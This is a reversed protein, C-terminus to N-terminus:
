FMELEQVIRRKDTGPASLGCRVAPYVLISSVLFAFGEQLGSNMSVGDIGALIMKVSSVGTLIVSNLKCEVM